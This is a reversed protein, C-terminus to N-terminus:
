LIDLSILTNRVMTIKKILEEEKVSVAKFTFAMLDNEGRRLPTSNQEISKIIAGLRQLLHRALQLILTIQLASSNPIAFSGIKVEPMQVYDKRATSFSRDLCAQMNGFINQYADVLRQYCSLVLLLSAQDMDTAPDRAKGADSEHRATELYRPHLKNLVEVFRHSLQFTRDIAVDRNTWTPPESTSAPPAPIAAVLAFLEVNLDSLGRINSLTGFQRKEERTKGGSRALTTSEHGDGDPDAAPTTITENATSLLAWEQNFRLQWTDLAEQSGLQAAFLPSREGGEAFGSSSDSATATATRAAHNDARVTWAPGPQDPQLNDTLGFDLSYPQAVLGSSATHPFPSNVDIRPLLATDGEISMADAFEAGTLSLAAVSDPETTDPQSAIPHRGDPRTLTAVGGGGAVDNNRKPRRLSPSWNCVSKNKICRVCSAGGASSGNSHNNFNGVSHGAPRICRLKQAHCRDCASRQLPPPM